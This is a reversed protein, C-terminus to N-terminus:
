DSWTAHVTVTAGTAGRLTYTRTVGDPPPPGAVLEPTPTTGFLDMAYRLASFDADEATWTTDRAPDHLTFSM